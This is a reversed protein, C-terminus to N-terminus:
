VSRLAVLCAFVLEFEAMKHDNWEICYLTVSMGKLAELSGESRGSAGGMIASLRGSMTTSLM